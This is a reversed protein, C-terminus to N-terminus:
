NKQTYEKVNQKITELNARNAKVTIEMEKPVIIKKDYLGQKEYKYFERSLETNFEDYVYGCTNDESTPINVYSNVYKSHNVIVEVKNTDSEIYNIPNSSHICFNDNMDYVEKTEIFSDKDSVLKYNPLDLTFLGIGVGIGVLGALATLGIRKAHVKKNFLFDYSLELVTYNIALCSLTGIFVGLFTLGTKIFTLEVVLSIVFFVFSFVFWIAFSVFLIKLCWIFIKFLGSVFKSETHEPDRIIIKQNQRKTESATLKNGEESNNEKKDDKKITEEYYDLYRIKFIHLFIIAGLILALIMYIISLANGAINFIKLPLFSFVNSFIGGLVIKIFGFLLYIAFGTLVEEFLCRVKGGFDFSIFMDVTKTIYAFFDDVYKNFVNKSERVESVQSVDEHMIENINCDFLKCILLVKDMEPYTSGSEWKSVSQRSVNLKEALEEQSLGKEKRLKKLNNSFNM